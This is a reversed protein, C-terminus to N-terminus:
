IDHFPVIDCCGCRHCMTQFSDTSLHFRELVQKQKKALKLIRTSTTQPISMGLADQLKQKNNKELRIKRLTPVVGISALQEVASIVSEDSEGLGYIINSSVKGKGFLQVANELMIFINQYDFDPCVKQFLAIDPIQLNIKIEDAGSDRLRLLENKELIISEVGIPLQPIKERIRQIIYSYKKIMTKNDPYVGGTLALANIQTNRSAKMIFSVFKEPTYGQLFGQPQQTCFACQYRCRPEINMFAQEPAHFLVPIIRVDTLFRKSNKKIHYKGQHYILRFPTDDKTNVGLKVRLRNFGITLSRIDSSPGATSRELPFPLKLGCPIRITGDSILEGKKAVADDPNV